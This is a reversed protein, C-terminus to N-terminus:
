DFGCHIFDFLVRLCDRFGQVGRIVREGALDERKPFEVKQVYEEFNYFSRPLKVSIQLPSWGGAM